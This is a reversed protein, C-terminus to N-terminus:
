HRYNRGIHNLNNARLRLYYYNAWRIQKCKRYHNGTMNNYDSNSDELIGMSIFQPNSLIHPTSIKEQSSPIIFSNPNKLFIPVGRGM